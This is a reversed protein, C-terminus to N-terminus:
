IISINKKQARYKDNPKIWNNREEEEGKKGAGVGGWGKDGKELQRRGDWREERLYIYKNNELSSRIGNSLQTKLVSAWGSGTRWRPLMVRGPLSGAWRYLCMGRKEKEVAGPPAVKSDAQRFCICGDGSLSWNLRKMHVTTSMLLYLHHQRVWLFWLPGVRGGGNKTTILQRVRRSRDESPHHTHEEAETQSSCCLELASAQNLQKTKKRNSWVKSECECQAESPTQLWASLSQAYPFSKNNNELWVKSSWLTEERGGSWILHVQDWTM